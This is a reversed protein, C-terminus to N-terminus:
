DQLTEEPMLMYWYLSKKDAAIQSIATITEEVTNGDSNEVQFFTFMKKSELEKIGSKQWLPGASPTIEGYMMAWFVAYKSLADKDLTDGKCILESFDPQDKMLRTLNVRHIRYTSINNSQSDVTKGNNIKVKSTELLDAFTGSYPAFPLAVSRWEKLHPNFFIDPDLVELIPAQLDYWLDSSPEPKVFPHTLQMPHLIYGAVEPITIGADILRTM